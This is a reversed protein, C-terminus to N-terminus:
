RSVGDLKRLENEEKKEEGNVCMSYWVRAGTHEAALMHVRPKFNVCLLHWEDRGMMISIRRRNKRRELEM